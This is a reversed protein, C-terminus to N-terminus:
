SHFCETLLRAAAMVTAPSRAADIVHWEHPGRDAALQQHLIAQDRTAIDGPRHGNGGALAEARTALWLGTFPVGAVHAVESMRRRDQPDLFTAEVIVTLGAALAAVTQQRLTEYVKRTVAADYATPALRAELTVNMLRKRVTDSRIVRAGPAAAIDAALGYAVASKGSGSVGGIAVLRPARDRLLSRALALHSQALALLHPAESPLHREISAALMEARMAARVALFLPLARLGELEDTVDIYRNFLVNACEALGRHQLDILPFALDYLVDTCSIEDSFEICDFLTPRGEILCINALRLDGHCRRVKGEVRRRNLLGGTQALAANIDAYFAAGPSGDSQRPLRQWERWWSEVAAHIAASGGFNPTIEAGKHLAAIEDALQQMLKPNLMRADARHDFLDAQDFRRMVVVWDVAAGDGDLSLSDDDNRRIARVDLYLDPATRRNLALEARCAAERRDLTSYDLSSFAVARKLKYARHGALFVVSCHTEIREVPVGELGYSASQSLFAITEQQNDAMIGQQAQKCSPM